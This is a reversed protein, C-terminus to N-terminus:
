DISNRPDCRSRYRLCLDGYRDRRDPARRARAARGLRDVNEKPGVVSLIDGRNLEVSASLPVQVRTRSLGTVLVGYHRSLELESLRKGAVDKNMVVVQATGMLEATDLDPAIEEGLETIATTFYRAPGLVLLEDGLELHDADYPGLIQNQRRIRVVSREDWFERRLAEIPRNVVEPNTIRYMRTTVNAHETAEREGSRELEAAQEPLNIGLAQPLLKIIAILGALGFIYTIAYGTAINGIMEDATVGAPPAVQGSRVAEQAAALTPSSTLGGSLVGASIGPDFDLLNAEVIVIVFGTAAIVVALLFYSLGDTRLVDFFRPGAQYGVSFIFLAFGVSQAGPSM